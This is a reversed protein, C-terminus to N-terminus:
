NQIIQTSSGGVTKKVWKARALFAKEGVLLSGVAGGLGKTLCLNISTPLACYERLTGAGSAVAEWLRAGDLHVAMDNSKAWQCIRGLEALPMVIGGLPVELHIVKTPCTCSDTGDSIVVYRQIDELSLWLGNSPAVTVVMAGSWSGVGGAEMHVLHSRVDCLVSYPPSGLHTRLAVQNGMISSVMFLTAERGTLKAMDGEFQAAGSATWGDNIGARAIAQLMAPTSVTCVDGIIYM